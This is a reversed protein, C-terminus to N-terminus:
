LLLIHVFATAAFIADPLKMRKSQRIDIVKQVISETIPIRYLISLLAETEIRETPESFVYGLTEMFSIDSIFLNDDPEAFDKPFM